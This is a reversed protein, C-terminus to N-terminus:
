RKIGEYSWTFCIDQRPNYDILWSSNIFERDNFIVEDFFDCDELMRITNIDNRIKPVKIKNHKKM